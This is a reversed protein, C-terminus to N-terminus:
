SAALSSIFELPARWYDRRSVDFFDNHDAGDILAFRKQGGLRDFLERGLAIPVISDRDGHMVLVPKSFGHLFEATPFRYAAFVNLARLVPQSRVVSAKDPFSSELILGDPRVARAAAAAITGGLSRGWFVLPRRPAPLRHDALYRAAAEGDRYVGDETPSGTSLGYGRYDIAFVRLNLQHLAALVPLWVSLNGGNGHFYLVDAIPRAPELHWGAIREGDATSLQIQRYPIGLSGPNRDEGKYPFFVLRPELASVIGKLM